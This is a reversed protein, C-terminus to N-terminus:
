REAHLFSLEAVDNKMVIIRRSADFAGNKTKGLSLSSGGEEYREVGKDGSRM